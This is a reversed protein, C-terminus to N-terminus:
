INRDFPFNNLPPRKHFLAFISLVNLIANVIENRNIAIRVGKRKVQRRDHIGNLNLFGSVNNLVNFKRHRQSLLKQIHHDTFSASMAKTVTKYVSFPFSEKNIQMKKILKRNKSLLQKFKQCM